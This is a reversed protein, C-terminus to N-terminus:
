AVVATARECAEGGFIIVKVEETVPKLKDLMAFMQM